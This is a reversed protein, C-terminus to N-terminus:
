RQEPLRAHCTPDRPLALEGSVLIPVSGGGEGGTRGRVERLVCADGFRYFLRTTRLRVLVGDVRLWFRLLIYWCKPMVRIQAALHIIPVLTAFELKCAWHM